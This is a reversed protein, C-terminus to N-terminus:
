LQICLSLERIISESLNNKISVDMIGITRCIKFTCDSFLDKIKIFHDSQMDKVLDFDQSMGLLSLHFDIADYQEIHQTSVITPNREQIYL